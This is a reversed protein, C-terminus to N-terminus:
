GSIFWGLLMMYAAPFIIRSSINIIRAISDHKKKETIFSTMVVVILALSVLITSGVTFYDLRTMYPLRPLLNALVFRHAILTLISSTSVAIRVGVQQREVWFAVWSMFVVVTLPLVIQWLYYSFYRKAEFRFVVGASQIEPIPSYPSSIAEDKTIDWDPVSLVDAIGGGIVNNRTEDAVFELDDATYGAAVFQITFTHKDMPFDSLKLPQSLKGTYRQQYVVNGNPFVQVVEPLSRSVMGVRNALLIQPNWVEELPVQRPSDHQMVLRDDHWRLRLYFNTTFNQAADDIDDVDLVFILFKVKTPGKWEDPRRATQEAKVAAEVAAKEVVKEVAKELSKETAIEAAKEAAKEVAKEVSKATVKEAAKEAAEESAKEIAQEVAKKTDVEVTLASFPQLLLVLGIIITLLSRM